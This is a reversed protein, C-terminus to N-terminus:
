RLPAFQQVGEDRHSPLASMRLPTLPDFNCSYPVYLLAFFQKYRYFMFISIEYFMCMSSLADYLIFLWHIDATVLRAWLQWLLSPWLFLCGSLATTVLRVRLFFVCLLSLTTLVFLCHKYMTALRVWVSLLSLTVLVLLCQIDMAVLRVWVLFSTSSPQLFSYDIASRLRLGLEFNDSILPDCSYVVVSHRGWLGLELQNFSLTMVVVFCRISMMVLRVWLPSLTVLILLWNTGTTVLGAWVAPLSLTYFNIFLSHGDDCCLVVM